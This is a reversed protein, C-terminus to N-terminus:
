RSLNELSTQPRSLILTFNMHRIAYKREPLRVRDKV